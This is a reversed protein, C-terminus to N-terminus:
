STDSWLLLRRASEAAGGAALLKKRRQACLMQGHRRRNQIWWAASTESLAVEQVVRLAAARDPIPLHGRVAAAVDLDAAKAPMNDLFEGRIMTAWEVQKPTGTLVPWGREAAVAAYTANDSQAQANWGEQDCRACPREARKRAQWAWTFPQGSDIHLTGDHGCSHTVTFKM